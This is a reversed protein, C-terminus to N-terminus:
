LSLVSWESLGKRRLRRRRNRAARQAVLVAALSVHAAENEAPTDAVGGAQALATYSTAVIGGGRAVDGTHMATGSRALAEQRATQSGAAVAATWSASGAVAAVGTHVTSDAAPSAGAAGHAAEQRTPMKGMAAFGANDTHARAEYQVPPTKGMAAFGADTIAWKTVRGQRMKALLGEGELVHLADEVVDVSLFPLWRSLEAATYPLWAKGGCGSQPHTTKSPTARRWAHSWFWLYQFVIAANVGVRSAVRTDLGWALSCEEDNTHWEGAWRHLLTFGKTAISYARTRDEGRPLWVDIIGEAELRHLIAEVTHRSLHLLRGLQTCSIRVRVVKRYVRGCETRKCEERPMQAQCQAFIWGFVAAARTGWCKAIRKNIVITTIWKM